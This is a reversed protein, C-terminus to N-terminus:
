VEVQTVRRTLFFGAVEFGIAAALIINGTSTTWLPEVTERSFVVMFGLVWIPLLAVINASAQEQAVMSKVDRRLKERDRMTEGVQELIEGLNGGVRAHVLLAQIAIDLDPSQVRAQLRILSDEFSGGARTEDMLRGFETSLPAEMDESVVRISDAISFGSQLSVAMMQLATPLQENFKDARGNAKRRVRWEIIVFVFFAVFFGAPIFGSLFAAVVGFLLSSSFLILAYESVKIPLNARELSVARREAWAFQRLFASVQENGSLNDAKLLSLREEDGKEEADDILRRTEYRMARDLTRRRTAGLQGSIASVLVMVALGSLLAALLPLIM